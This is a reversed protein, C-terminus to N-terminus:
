RLSLAIDLIQQLKTCDETLYEIERMIKRVNEDKATHSFFLNLSCFKDFIQYSFLHRKGKIIDLDEIAIKM